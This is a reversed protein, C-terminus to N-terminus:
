GVFSVCTGNKNRKAKKHINEKSKSEKKKSKKIKAETRVKGTDQSLFFLFCFFFM